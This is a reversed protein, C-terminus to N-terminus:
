SCNQNLGFCFHFIQFEPFNICFSSLSFYVGFIMSHLVLLRLIRGCDVDKAILTCSLSGVKM